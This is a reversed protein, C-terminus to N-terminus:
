QIVVDGLNAQYSEDLIANYLSSNIGREGALDDSAAGILYDLAIGWCDEVSTIEQSELRFGGEADTVGSALIGPAWATEELWVEADAVPRGDEDTVRGFVELDHTTVAGCGGQPEGTTTGTGPATTTGTSPNGANIVKLEGSGQCAITASLVLLTLCRM